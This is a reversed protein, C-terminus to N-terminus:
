IINLKAILSLLLFCYCSQLGNFLTMKQYCKVQQPGAREVYGNKM